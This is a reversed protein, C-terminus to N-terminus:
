RGTTVLAAVAAKGIATAAKAPDALEVLRAGPLPRPEPAFALWLVACGARRLAAVRQAARTAETSRYRGDSAVVCLRGTGPSLLDLGGVLSDIAEALSHGFGMASFETVRHPVRGPPIIATVSTDYAVTATLSTPDILAAAKAIIWAASAMPATAARMSASVDVAIGVRLPPTPSPRRVTRTWPPATVPVGAAQQAQRIFAQRMNLRGPPVESLIATATPERFAAARLDRALRNAAVKETGTPPRTGSVPSWEGAKMGPPVYPLGGPAFVGKATETARGAKPERHGGSTEQTVHQDRAEAAGSAAITAVVEGIAKVLEALEGAALDPVPEPRTPNAGLARCWAKAHQMMTQEDDDDTEHAAKWIVTLADLLGRGLVNVVAKEVPRSEEAGLVGADRRALVLAAAAAVQWRGSPVNSGFDGVVLARLAARLYGRDAPRRALHAREARSEELLHAATESATGRLSSPVSWRSHAVHAAEHTFAGWAIPYNAEDGVRTPDISSPLLPAFLVRDIELTAETPFFAAPAGSRTQAECIVMVGDREALEPLRDSLAAGIRLWQGAQPDPLPEHVLGGDDEWRALDHEAETLAPPVPMVHPRVAM